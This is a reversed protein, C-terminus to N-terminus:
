YITFIHKQVSSYILIIYPQDNGANSEFIMNDLNGINQEISKEGLTYHVQKKREGNLKKKSKAKEKRM